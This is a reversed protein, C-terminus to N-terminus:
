LDRLDVHLGARFGFELGAHLFGRRQELAGLATGAHRQLARDLHRRAVPQEHLPVRDLVVRDVETARGIEGLPALQDAVAERLRRLDVVHRLDDLPESIRAWRRLAVRAANASAATSEQAEVAVRACVAGSRAASISSRTTALRM